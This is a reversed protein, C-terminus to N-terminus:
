GTELVGFAGAYQQPLLQGWPSCVGLACWALSGGLSSAPQCWSACPVADRGM